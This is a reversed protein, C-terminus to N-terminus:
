SLRRKIKVMHHKATGVPINLFEAIEEYKFGWARLIAVKRLNKPLKHLHHKLKPKDDSPSDNVSSLDYDMYQIDLKHKKREDILLNKTTKFIFNHLHRYSQFDDIVKQVQM